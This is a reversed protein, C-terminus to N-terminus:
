FDFLSLQQIDSKTEDCCNNINSNVVLLNKDYDPKFTGDHQIRDIEERTLYHDTIVYRVAETGVNRNELYDKIRNTDIFFSIDVDKRLVDFLSVKLDVPDPFRYSPLGLDKRVSLMFLRERHQPIGYDAADLIAYYNNYGLGEVTNRWADFHEKNQKDALSRVNEQLLFKPRLAAICDEVNWLISSVTGSNKEIGKVTCPRRSAMSISQCPTSYTLLDIDRDGRYLFNRWAKWDIKTIDGLNRKYYEPFLANHALVAIQAEIDCTAAPDFESWALLDDHINTGNVYNYETLMQRIAILQSDYGSCLTVMRLRDKLTPCFQVDRSLWINAFIKRLCAVVISNGALRNIAARSMGPLSVLTTIMSEPMDMLALIEENSLRRMDFLRYAQHRCFKENYFPSQTPYVMAVVCHPLKEGQKNGYYIDM